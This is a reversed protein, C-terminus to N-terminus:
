RHREGRGRDEDNRDRGRDGRDGRDGQDGKDHKEDRNGQDRRDERNGREQTPPAPRERREAPPNGDRRREPPQRGRDGQDQPARREGRQWWGRGGRDRNDPPPAQGRDNGRGRWSRDSPPRSRADPNVRDRNERLKLIEDRGRWIRGERYRRLDRFEPRNPRVQVPRERRWRVDRDPLFRTRLTARGDLSSWQQKWQRYRTPATPRVRYIYRPRVTGYRIPAYHAWTADVRIEFASCANVYPDFYFPHYHCDACVYRPYEVRQGIYFYTENTAIRDERGQPAIRRIIRDIGVYPDGQIQGSDTDDDDDELDPRAGDARDASLYWPLDQFPYPSAVAVVYEIGPPGDAVLDYPDSRAPIRYARGGDVFPPDEPGYPYILHIYGETDVNFVLVYGDGTSRFYVRMSEGPRYVGGEDKNIWVDVDLRGRRAIRQAPAHEVDPYDSPNSAPVHEAAAAVSAAALMAALALMRVAPTKM